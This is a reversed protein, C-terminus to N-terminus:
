ETRNLKIHLARCWLFTAECPKASNTPNSVLCIFLLHLFHVLSGPMIRIYYWIKVYEQLWYDFWSDMTDRIRENWHVAACQQFLLWVGTPTEYTSLESIEWFTWLEVASIQSNEKVLCEMMHVKFTTPIMTEQLIVATSTKNALM